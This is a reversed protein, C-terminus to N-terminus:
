MIEVGTGFGLALQQELKQQRQATFAHYEHSEELTAATADSLRVTSPAGPLMGSSPSSADLAAITPFLALLNILTGKAYHAVLPDENNVLTQFDHLAGLALLTMSWPYDNSVNLCLGAAYTLVLSAALGDSPPVRLCRVVAEGVDGALLERKTESSSADLSDSCLNALCLLMAQMSHEDNFDNLLMALHRVAGGERLARGVATGEEQTCDNLIESLDLLAILRNAPSLSYLGSAAEMAAAVMPSQQVQDSLLHAIQETQQALQRELLTVKAALEAARERESVAHLENEELSRREQETLVTNLAVEKEELSRRLASIDDILMVTLSRELSKLRQERGCGVFHM